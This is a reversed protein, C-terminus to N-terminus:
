KGGGLFPPLGGKLRGYLAWGTGVIVAVASGAATFDFTEINFTQGMHVLASIAGFIAALMAFVSGQVVRSQPLPELNLNNKIVPNNEVAREIAPAVAHAVEDIPRDAPQKRIADIVDPGLKQLLAGAIPFKAKIIDGFIGNGLPM